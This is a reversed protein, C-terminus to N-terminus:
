IFDQEFSLSFKCQSCDEFKSKDRSLVKTGTCIMCSIDSSISIKKYVTNLRNLLILYFRKVTRSWQFFNVETFFRYARSSYFNSIKFNKM